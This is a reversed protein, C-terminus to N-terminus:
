VDKSALTWRLSDNTHNSVEPKKEVILESGESHSRKSLRNNGQTMSIRHSQIKPVPGKMHELLESIPPQQSPAVWLGPKPDPHYSPQDTWWSERVKVVLTLEGARNQSAWGICCAAFTLDLKGARMDEPWSVWMRVVLALEGANGLCPAPVARWTSCGARMGGLGARRGAMSPLPYTLPSRERASLPSPCHGSEQEWPRLATEGM